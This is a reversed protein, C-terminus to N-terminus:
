VLDHGLLLSGCDLLTVFGVGEGSVELGENSFVYHGQAEALVAVGGPNELLDLENHGGYFAPYNGFYDIYTM